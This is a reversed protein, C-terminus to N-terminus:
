LSNKYEMYWEVFKPIGESMPTKPSFGLIERSAEIDAYTEYVDGPQMPELIKETTKGLVKEITEIFELLSETRNNGLNLVRHPADGICYRGGEEPVTDISALVGGVIDDIWTFDRKM